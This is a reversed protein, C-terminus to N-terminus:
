HQKSAARDNEQISNGNTEVEIQKTTVAYESPMIEKGYKIAYSKTFEAGLYLILSSYYIWVLLIILAGAAGFWTGVYSRSIYFSIAFKGLMFLVATFVAGMIVDKWRIKADPLVKFIVAFIFTVVAITVGQNIVYLFSVALGPFHVKLVDSLKDIVATVTLSILLLFGLSIIISFSLLRNQIMKLWGKRPKPKLGWIDNISDQIEAFVSTAGIFLVVGGIVITITNKSSVAANKILEQLQLAADKGLFQQLQAYVDGQVADHGFFFGCVFIIVIILPGMSFVASYALSGSLKTIKDDSFGAITKSFVESIDKLKKNIKM